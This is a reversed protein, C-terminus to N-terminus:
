KSTAGFSYQKRKRSKRVVRHYVRSTVTNRLFLGERTAQQAVTAEVCTKKATKASIEVRRRIKEPHAAYRRVCIAEPRSNGVTIYM